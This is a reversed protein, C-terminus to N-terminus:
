QHKAHELLCFQVRSCFAPCRWRVLLLPNDSTRLCPADPSTNVPNVRRPPGMVAGHSGFCQVPFSRFMIHSNKQNEKRQGTGMTGEEMIETTPIMDEYKRSDPPGLYGPISGEASSLISSQPNSPACPDVNANVDVTWICVQAM